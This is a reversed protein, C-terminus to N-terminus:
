INGEPVSSNPISPFNSINQQTPKKALSKKVSPPTTRTSEQSLAKEIAKSFEGIEYDDAYKKNAIRL